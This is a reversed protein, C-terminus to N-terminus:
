PAPRTAALREEGRETVVFVQQYGHEDMLATALRGHEPSRVLVIVPDGHRLGHALLADDLRDLLRPGPAYDRIDALLARTGLDAKIQVAQRASIVFATPLTDDAAEPVPAPARDGDCTVFSENDVARIGCAGDGSVTPTAIAAGPFALAAALLLNTNRM